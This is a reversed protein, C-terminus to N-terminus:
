AVNGPPLVISEPGLEGRLLCPPLVGLDVPPPAPPVVQSHTGVFGLRREILHQVASHEIAQEPALDSEILTQPPVPGYVIEPVPLTPILRFLPVETPELVILAPSCILIM